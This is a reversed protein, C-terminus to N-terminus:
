ATTIQDGRGWRGEEQAAKRDNCRKCSPQWNSRDWFLRADGRHPVVHDVCTAETVRGEGPCYVRCLQNGEEALYAKSAKRWRHGYLRKAASPRARERERRRAKAHEECRNQGLPVVTACGPEACPKGLM